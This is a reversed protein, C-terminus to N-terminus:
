SNTRQHKAVNPVSIVAHHAATILVAHHAKDQHVAGQIQTTTCFLEKQKTFITSTDSSM